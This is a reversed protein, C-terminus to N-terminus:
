AITAKSTLRGFTNELKFWQQEKGVQEASFWDKLSTKFTLLVVQGRPIIILIVKLDLVFSLFSPFISLLRKEKKLLTSDLQL